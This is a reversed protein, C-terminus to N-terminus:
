PSRPLVTALTHEIYPAVYTDPMKPLTPPNTTSLVAYELQLGVRSMEHFNIICAASDGPHFLPIVSSSACGLLKTPPSEKMHPEKPCIHYLNARKHFVRYTDFHWCVM